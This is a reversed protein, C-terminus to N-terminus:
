VNPSCGGCRKMPATTLPSATLHVKPAGAHEGEIRETPRSACVRVSFMVAGQQGTIDIM